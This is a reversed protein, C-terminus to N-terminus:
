RCSLGQPCTETKSMKSGPSSCLALGLHEMFVYPVLGPIGMHCCRGSAVAWLPSRASLVLGPSCCDEPVRWVVPGEVFFFTTVRFSRLAAGPCWLWSPGPSFVIWLHGATWGQGLPTGDTLTSSTPGLMPWVRHQAHLFLNGNEPRQTIFFSSLLM